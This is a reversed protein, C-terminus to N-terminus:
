PHLVENDAVDRYIHTGNAVVVNRGIRARMYITCGMGILTNSAVSVAGALVAGPAIHVHDSIQCDHSVIAGTNIICGNGIRVASEIVARAMIQNGEGLVASPALLAHTHILNPQFFGFSKLREDIQHRMAHKEVMGIGNVAFKVGNNWQRKLAADDDCDLVPVGLIVSGIPHSADLIGVIEWGGTMRLLDICKKAHGGAGLIFLRNGGPKQGGEPVPKQGALVVLVDERTVTKLHKFHEMGLQNQELLAQAAKSIRQESTELGAVAPLTQTGIELPEPRKAVSNIWALVDGIEVHTGPTKNFYIFGDAVSHIEFSSKSTELIAVVEGTRVADGDRKPSEVFLYRDDSVTEKPVVLPTPKM